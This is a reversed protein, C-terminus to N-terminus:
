QYLLAGIHQKIVEEDYSKQYEAMEGDKCLYVTPVMSIKYEAALRPCEDTNVKILNIFPLETEIKMLVPLLVRCPGCHTSYFDIISIGEKKLEQFNDDTAQLVAM